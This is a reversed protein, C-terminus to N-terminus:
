QEKNDLLPRTFDEMQLRLEEISKEWWRSGQIRKQIDESFRYKIIKGPNGVVVAYDPVDKTVVTGAGIVAGDGITKVSPTIVAGYGVWVDNGIVLRTRTILEEPVYGYYPNYFFPHTSMFSMPHNGNFIRIGSAFSCYRGITTFPAISYPNFCGGYSYLGIEILHYRAFIRRLTPSVMQGGELRSVSRLIADRLRKRKLAYLRELAVALRAGKSVM